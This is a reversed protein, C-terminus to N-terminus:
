SGYILNKGRFEFSTLDSISFALHFSTPRRFIPSKSGILRRIEDVTRSLNSLRNIVLLFNWLYVREISVLTLRDSCAVALDTITYKDTEAKIQLLKVSERNKAKLRDTRTWEMSTNIISSM